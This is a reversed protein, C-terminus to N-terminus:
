ASPETSGGGWSFDGGRIAGLLYGDAGVIWELRGNADYELTTQNGNPDELATLRGQSDFLYAIQDARTLRYGSGEQALTARM